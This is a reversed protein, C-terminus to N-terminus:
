GRNFMDAISPQKAGGSSRRGASKVAKVGGGGKKVSFVEMEEGRERRCVRVGTVTIPGGVSQIAPFM